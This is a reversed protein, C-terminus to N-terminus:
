HLFKQVPQELQKETSQVTLLLKPKFVLTQELLQTEAEQTLLEM